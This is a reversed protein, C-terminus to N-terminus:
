CMQDPATITCDTGLISPITWLDSQRFTGLEPSLCKLRKWCCFCTSFINSCPTPQPVHGLLRAYITALQQQRRTPMHASEHQLSQPRRLGAAPM